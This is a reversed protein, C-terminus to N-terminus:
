GGFVVGISRRRPALTGAASLELEGIRKTLTGIYNDLDGSNRDTYRVRRGDRVIEVVGRGTALDHRAQEAETLWTRYTALDSM